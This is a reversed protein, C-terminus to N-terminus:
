RTALTIRLTAGGNPNNEARIDGRHAEIINHSIALGLGMGNAKTTFFPEFLHELNEPAIGPGADTVAVEVQGDFCRTCVIVHRDEPANNSTADMANLLFNLLVQQLQVRDGRIPLLIPELDLVLKMRRREADPRVLSAVEEVLANLDLETWQFERRKLLARMRDIVEGARQDDKRIDALIGRVEQLDPPIGQLFLDAAEANRLIAGLPQNLEHALASALQGMVSVRGAHALEDRHRHAESEAQKRATIDTVAGMRRRGHSPAGGLSRGKATVWRETGNSLIRFDAEFLLDNEQAQQVTSVVRTRDDPHIRALVDDFRLADHEGFGFLSRLHQNAWMDGRELDRVWLGLEGATTSLEMFEQSERLEAENERLTQEARKREIILDFQAAVATIVKVLREDERRPERMFFEVVALVQDGSLIPIGLAAKLGIERAIQACPFNPDLTVDQVWVPQKSSWVRGPLGVGPLFTTAESFKRFKELGTGVSFCAPSCDLVTGDLRPIWAQGIVWGTKECVRRVVVELASAFDNAAGVEMTITQLLSLREQAQRREIAACLMEALSDILNREETLFPGEREKPREELYAVEITGRLGEAVSFDVRQIWPTPKFNATTLELEGLQIRAATIEPYQWAPPLVGVFQQLWEATALEENQLIRAARHLATLEKVRDGLHHLLENHKDETRKRETIDRGVAQYEVLRRQEDFFGRNRWQQWRIEGDPALVEHETTAIPREPTISALFERAARHGERPILDWFNSGLLEERSRQFYQCYADNVFTYTGDPLFRCILETQDEVVARYRAESFTLAQEKTHREEMLAALLVLPLSIVILFVQISLVNEAPLGTVFPGRGVFASLLAVSAVLLLSFCLGGPGLRVAAWLLFPLPVLLLAPVEGLALADRSFVTTASVLLGITLLGLEAYGRSGMREPILKGRSTLLILPTITLVAFVNAFVRQRWPVLFDTAWGTVLFLSVALACAIATAGIAAVLVFLSMSRFTDFRPSAEGTISRVAIVALVAHIANAAVQSFMVVLPVNPRQFNAVVHLHALVVAVLYVWWLRAPVLFLAALLIATAPWIAAIGSPPFGVLIGAMAGAYYGACVFLVAAATRSYAHM